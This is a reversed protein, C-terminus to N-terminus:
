RTKTVIHNATIHQYFTGACSFVTFYPHSVYYLLDILSRRLVYLSALATETTDPFLIESFMRFYLI